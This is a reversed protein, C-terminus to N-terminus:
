TILEYCNLEEVAVLNRELMCEALLRGRDNALDLTGCVTVPYVLCGLVMRRYDQWCADFDYDEVGKQVLEDIYIQLLDREIECRLVSPLSQCMFYTVDFIGKGRGSIQWDVVKADLNDDKYIMNDQRYDGHVFTDPGNLNRSWYEPFAEGVQRLLAITKDDLFSRFKEIAPDVAPAYLLDQLPEAGADTMMPYLWADDASNWWRAHMAAVRRIASEAEEASAGILQDRPSVDGLDEMLLVCNYTQPDIAGFYSEPVDMPCVAAYRNYFNVERNYFDLIRAVQINENQAACKAIMSRPFREENEYTVTLRALEGMLGVGIGVEQAEVRLVSSKLLGREKLVSTLWESNIESTTTVVQNM